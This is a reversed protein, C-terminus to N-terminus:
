IENGEADFNSFCVLCATGKMKGGCKPCLREPQSHIIQQQTQVPKNRKEKEVAQVILKDFQKRLSSGSMINSAWTFGNQQVPHNKAYVIAQEIESWSHKDISNMLEIDRAWTRVHEPKPSYDPKWNQKHIDVMLQALRAAECSIPKPTKTKKSFSCSPNDTGSESSNKEKRNEEKRQPIDPVNDSNETVTNDNGTGLPENKPTEPASIGYKARVEDITLQKNARKSYLDNLSNMFDQCFIVKRQTWLEKDIKGTDAMLDLMQDALPEESAGLKSLIYLHQIPDSLDLVHYPTSCLTRMLQTFFGIGVLGYKTQLIFLTRGDKVMFPFFDADNRETRAM